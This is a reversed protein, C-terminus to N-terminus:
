GGGDVIFSHYKVHPFQLKLMYLMGYWLQKYLRRGSNSGEPEFRTSSM